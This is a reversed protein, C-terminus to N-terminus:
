DICPDPQDPPPDGEVTCDEEVAEVPGDAYEWHHTITWSTGNWFYNRTVKCPEYSGNCSASDAALPQSRLETSVVAGAIAVTAILIGRPWMVVELPSLPLRPTTSFRKQLMIEERALICPNLLHLLSKPVQGQWDHEM